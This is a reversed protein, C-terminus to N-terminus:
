KGNTPFYKDILSDNKDHLEKLLIMATDHLIESQQIQEEVREEISTPQMSLATILAILSLALLYKM